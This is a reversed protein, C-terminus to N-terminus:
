PDFIWNIKHNSKKHYNKIKMIISNRHGSGILFIGQSFTNESSYNYINQIMIEERHKHIDIWKKYLTSYEIKGLELICNHIINDLKLNYDETQKSNLYELGYNYINFKNDDILKRYLEGNESDLTNFMAHMKELGNFFQDNPINESDVLVHAIKNMIKYRFIAISELGGHSKNIHSPPLEQFIVQPKIIEFIDLLIDSNCAGLSQHRTNILTITQM